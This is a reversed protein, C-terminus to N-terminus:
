RKPVITSDNNVAGPAGQLYTSPSLVIQDFAVGDERVQIRLTHTGSTAFTVTTPQALWYATNQWGWGQISSGTGDTALNVLLGTATGIPYVPAGSALADSLQVWVSDNWKSNALAQLRLWITYPMGANANFTVDVYHAPAASPAGTMSWGNDPTALKIGNPSTPDAAQSWMGHLASTPIDAAYIVVNGSSSTDTTFSWVPGPTAGASNRAVIQWYYATNGTLAAPTYSATPQATAVSPPPNALGFSVDYSTAGAATWTLMPRSSVGTAGDPPTPASPVAPPPVGAATTFFWVPGPTAGASNRAVIQWYYWTNAALAAPTYSATRQATAVCPPPNALGFSVDYSTAGAATWTLTPTGSVGPAGNTPTPAGPAAPQSTVFAVQDFTMTALVTATHSTVPLGIFASGASAVPTSGITTWWTGESSVAATVTSGSRMLRIWGPFPVTAGGLYSTAGGSTARQMFEVGGDPKVDLIV